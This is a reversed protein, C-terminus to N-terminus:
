ETGIIGIVGKVEMFELLLELSSSSFLEDVTDEEFIIQVVSNRKLIEPNNRSNNVHTNRTEDDYGYIDVEGEGDLYCIFDTYDYFLHHNFKSDEKVQYVKFVCCLKFGDM